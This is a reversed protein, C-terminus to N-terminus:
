SDRTSQYFARVLRQTTRLRKIHSTSTAPALLHEEKQSKTARAPEPLRSHRVEDSNRVAATQM